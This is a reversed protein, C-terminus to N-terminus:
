KCHFEYFIKKIKTYSFKINKSLFLLNYLGWQVDVAKDWEGTKNCEGGEERGKTCEKEVGTVVERHHGYVWKNGPVELAM